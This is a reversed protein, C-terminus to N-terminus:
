ERCSCRRVQDLHKQLHRLADSQSVVGVFERATDATLVCVRHLGMSFYPM